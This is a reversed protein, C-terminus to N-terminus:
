QEARRDIIYETAGEVPEPEPENHVVGNLVARIKDGQGVFQPPYVTLIHKNDLSWCEHRGAVTTCTLRGQLENLGPVDDLENGVARLILAEKQAVIQATVRKHLEDNM